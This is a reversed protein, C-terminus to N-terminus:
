GRPVEKAAARAEPSNGLDWKEALLLYPGFEAVLAQRSDQEMIWNAEDLDHALWTVRLMKGMSRVYLTQDDTLHTSPRNAM